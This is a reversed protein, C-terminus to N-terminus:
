TDFGNEWYPWILCGLMLLALVVRKGLGVFRIGLLGHLREGKLGGVGCFFEEVSKSDEEVSYVVVQISLYFLPISSLVFKILCIRGTMSIYKGKWRGLM